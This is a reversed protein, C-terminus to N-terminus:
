SQGEIKSLIQAQKQEEPIRETLLLLLGLFMFINIFDFMKFRSTFM